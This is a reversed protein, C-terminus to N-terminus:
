AAKGREEVVVRLRAEREERERRLQAIVIRVIVRPDPQNM